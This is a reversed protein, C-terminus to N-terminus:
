KALGREILTHVYDHVTGLQKAIGQTTAEVHAVRNTLESIHRLLDIRTPPDEVDSIIHGIRLSDKQQNAELATVKVTLADFDTKSPFQQRLWFFGGLLILPTVTSAVQWLLSLLQLWNVPM